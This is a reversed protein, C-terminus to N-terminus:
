RWEGNADVYFGDPTNCNAYMAGEPLPGNVGEQFYYWPGSPGACFWGTKAAGRTGDSIPNLYYWYGNLQVWGTLMIGFENCYFWQGNQNVWNSVVAKNGNNPDFYYWNGNIQQWGSVKGESDKFVLNEGSGSFNGYTTNDDASVSNNFDVWNSSKLYKSQDSDKAIARVKFSIDYEDTAYSSLDIEPKTVKVTKYSKYDGNDNEKLIQVEYMKCYEVKDWVALYEDEFYLNTPDELTVKPVYNVKVTIKSSKVTKSVAEGNSVSIKKIKSTDFKYGEKPEITLEYTVKSGPKWESYDKSVTYDVLEYSSSSVKPEVEYITGAETKTEYMSVSVSTIKKQDAFSTLCFLMTLLMTTMMIKITKM